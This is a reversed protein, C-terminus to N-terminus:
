LAPITALSCHVTFLSSKKAPRQENKKNAFTRSIINDLKKFIREKEYEFTTM